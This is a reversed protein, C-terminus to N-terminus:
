FRFNVGLSFTHAQEGTTTPGGGFDYTDDGLSSFMYRGDVSWNRALRFEAGVGLGVGSHQGEVETIPASANTVTTRVHEYGVFAYPMWPGRALGARVGLFGAFDTKGRVTVTPSLQAESEVPTVGVWAMVGLILNEGVQVDYGGQVALYGDQVEHDHACLGVCGGEDIEQGLHYAAHVGVYGGSWDTAPPITTTQAAASGAAM